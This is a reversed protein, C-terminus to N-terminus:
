EASVTVSARGASVNLKKKKAIAALGKDQSGIETRWAADRINRYGAAVGLFRADLPLQYDVVKQAGPALEFEQRSILAAALTAQEKDYLAFFDADKFAADDKLQYVRIVIPSPRNQADPNADASASVTLKLVQPKPPGSKCATLALCGALLLAIPLTPFTRLRSQM